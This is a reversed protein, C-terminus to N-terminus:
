QPCPLFLLLALVLLLRLVHNLPVRQHKRVSRAGSWLRVTSTCRHSCFFNDMEWGPRLKSLAGIGRSKGWRLRDRFGRRLQFVPRVNTGQLPVRHREAVKHAGDFSQVNKAVVM